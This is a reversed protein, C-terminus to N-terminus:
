APSGQAQMIVSFTFCPSSHTTEALMFICHLHQTVVINNIISMPTGSLWSAEWM